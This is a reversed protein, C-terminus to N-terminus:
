IRGHKNKGVNQKGEGIGATIVSGLASEMIKEYADQKLQEEASGAMAAWVVGAILFVAILARIILRYMQSKRNM